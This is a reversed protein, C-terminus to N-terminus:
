KKGLIRSILSMKYGEDDPYLGLALIEEDTLCRKNKNKSRGNLIKKAEKMARKTPYFENNEGYQNTGCYKCKVDFVDIPERCQLCIREM